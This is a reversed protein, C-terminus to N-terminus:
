RPMINYNALLFNDRINVVRKPLKNSRLKNYDVMGEIYMPMLSYDPEALPVPAGQESKITYLGHLEICKVYPIIDPDYEEICKEYVPRLEELRKQEAGTIEPMELQDLKEIIEDVSYGENHWQHVMPTAEKLVRGSLLYDVDLFHKFITDAENLKASNELVERPYKKTVCEHCIHGEEHWVGVTGYKYALEKQEEDDLGVSHGDAFYVDLTRGCTGCHYRVSKYEVIPM